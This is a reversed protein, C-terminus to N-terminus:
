EPGPYPRFPHRILKRVGGRPDDDDGMKRPLVHWHLHELSQGAATGVNLAANFASVGAAKRLMEQIDTLMSGLESWEASTLGAIDVVHRKPVIL